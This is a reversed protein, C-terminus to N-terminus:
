EKGIELAVSGGRSATQTMQEFQKLVLEILAERDLQALDNRTM